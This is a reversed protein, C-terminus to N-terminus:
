PDCTNNSHSLGISFTVGLRNLMLVLSGRCGCKCLQSKLLIFCLCRKSRAWPTAIYCSHFSDKMKARCPTSDSYLTVPAVADIGFEKVIENESFMAEVFCAAAGNIVTSEVFVFVSIGRRGTVTCGSTENTALSLLDPDQFRPSVASPEKSFLEEIIEHPLRISM